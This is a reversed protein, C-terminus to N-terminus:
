PQVTGVFVRKGGKIEMIGVPKEADHTANITTDGTVGKFGKTEALAKTIAEPEAKGARKIADMVLMYSDYGLASNVNPDKKPFAKKWNQTFKKAVPNMDKMTPDYPFTTYIFGEVASGGIKVIEPNDMADGGMIRFKGGLQQAQKMIIAGEAFYSPIFLVDPKKSIIETLQATFDQDGSNYNLKAVIKGGMKTFSREFFTALGVSYDQAVDILLAASKAKLTKVAYAAAGAGQFPDIFCARFYYKKGQTVLPNTCSTGVAPIGAKESIEGGALALSSGYTGIIAVVKEKEILRKVANAAEVKDSKNDVVVLEVKKGLISGMEQHAMKVGDLELQGGFANQGTLPLYVGIRVADAAFAVGAVLAVMLVALGLSKFGKM